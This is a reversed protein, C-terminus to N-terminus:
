FKKDKFCSKFVGDCEFIDDNLTEFAIKDVTRPLLGIYRASKHGPMKPPKPLM